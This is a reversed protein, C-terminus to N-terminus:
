GLLTCSTGAGRRSHEFTVPIQELHGYIIAYGDAPGNTLGALVIMDLHGKLM